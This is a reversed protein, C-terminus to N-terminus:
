KKTIKKIFHQARKIITTKEKPPPNCSILQEIPYLKWACPNYIIIDEPTHKPYPSHIYPVDFYDFPVKCGSIHQELAGVIEKFHNDGLAIFITIARRLPKPLTFCPHLSKKQLYKLCCLFTLLKKRLPKLFTFCVVKGMSVAKQLDPMCAYIINHFINNLCTNSHELIKTGQIDVNNELFWHFIPDDTKIYNRNNAIYLFFPSSAFNITYNVTNIDIKKHQLAKIVLLKHESADRTAAVRALLNQNWLDNHKIDIDRDILYLLLAWNGCSSLIEVPYGNIKHPPTHDCNDYYCNFAKNFINISHKEYIEKIKKGDNDRCAIYIEKSLKEPVKSETARCLSITVFIPIIFLMMKNILLTNM